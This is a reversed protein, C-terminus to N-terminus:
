TLHQWRWGFIKPRFKLWEFPKPESHFLKSQNPLAAYYATGSAQSPIKQHKRKIYM